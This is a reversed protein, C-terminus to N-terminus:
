FNLNGLTRSCALMDPHTTTAGTFSCLVLQPTSLIADIGFPVPFGYMSAQLYLNSYTHM